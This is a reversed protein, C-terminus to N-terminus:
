TRHYEIVHLYKRVDTIRDQFSIWARLSGLREVDETVSEQLANIRYTQVMM